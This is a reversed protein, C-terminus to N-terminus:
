PLLHGLYDLYAVSICTLSCFSLMFVLPRASRPCEELLSRSVALNMISVLVGAMIPWHTLALYSILFYIM